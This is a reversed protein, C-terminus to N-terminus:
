PSLHQKILEIATRIEYHEHRRIIGVQEMSPLVVIGEMNGLNEFYLLTTLSISCIEPNTSSSEPISQAEETVIWGTGVIPLAQNVSTSRNTTTIYANYHHNDISNLKCTHHHPHLQLTVYLTPLSLSVHVPKPGSPALMEPPCMHVYPFQQLVSIFSFKPLM